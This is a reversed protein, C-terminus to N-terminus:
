LGSQFGIPNIFELIVGALLLMLLGITSSLLRTKGADVKGTDGNSMVIQLGGIVCNLVAIAVGIMFAWQWVGQDRYTYFATLPSGGPAISTVGGGPLPELICISRFDICGNPASPCPQSLDCADTSREPKCDPAVGCAAHAHGLPLLICFVFLISLVLRRCFFTFM